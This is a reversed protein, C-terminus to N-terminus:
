RVIMTAPRAAPMRTPRMCCQHSREAVVPQRQEEQRDEDGREDALREGPLVGEVM